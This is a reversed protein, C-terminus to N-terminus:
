FFVTAEPFDADIVTRYIKGNILNKEFAETLTKAGGIIFVEKESDTGRIIREALSIADSLSPAFLWGSDGRAVNRDIVINIRDPLPAPFTRFTNYGMIVINGTTLCKFNKMDDECQKIIEPPLDDRIKNENTRWPLTGDANGMEGNRGVAYIANVIM